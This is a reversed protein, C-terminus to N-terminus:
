CTNGSVWGANAVQQLRRSPPVQLGELLLGLCRSNDSSDCSVPELLRLSRTTEQTGTLHLGHSSDIKWREM